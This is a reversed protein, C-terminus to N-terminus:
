KRAYETIIKEGEAKRKEKQGNEGTKSNKAENTRNNHTKKIKERGLRPTLETDTKYLSNKARQGGNRRNNM